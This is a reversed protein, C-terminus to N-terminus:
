FSVTLSYSTKKRIEGAVNRFVVSLQKQHSFPINYHTGTLQSIDYEFSELLSSKKFASETSHKMTEFDTM